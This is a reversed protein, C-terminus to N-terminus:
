FSGVEFPALILRETGIRKNAQRCACGVGVMKRFQPASWNQWVDPGNAFNSWGWVPVTGYGALSVMKKSLAVDCVFGVERGVLCQAKGGQWLGLGKRCCKQSRRKRTSKGCNAPRLPTAAEFSRANVEGRRCKLFCFWSRRNGSKMGAVAGIAFGLREGRRRL